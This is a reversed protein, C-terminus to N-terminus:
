FDVQADKGMDRVRLVRQEETTLDTLSHLHPQLSEKWPGSSAAGRRVERGNVEDVLAIEGTRSAAFRIEVERPREDESAPLVSGFVAEEPLQNDVRPDQQNGAEAALLPVRGLLHRKLAEATVGGEPRAGQGGSLAEQLAKTFHGWVLRDSEDVQYGQTAEFAKRQFESAYAVFHRTRGADRAPKAAGLTSPLGTVAIKRVRCCDLFFVIEEFLGYETIMNFYADASLAMNRRDTSWKALCMNTGQVGSALGHGAFYLYFRRGGGREEARDLLRQLAEDIDDHIPRVPTESSVVLECNAADLGGGIDHDRLWDAFWEADAAAGDLDEYDPYHEIGVVLGYDADNSVM